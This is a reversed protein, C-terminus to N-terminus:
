SIGIIRETSPTTTREPESSRTLITSAWLLMQNMTRWGSPATTKKTQTRASSSLIGNSRGSASESSTAPHCVSYRPIVKPM